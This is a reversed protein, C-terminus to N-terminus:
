PPARHTEAGVACVCSPRNFTVSPWTIIGGTPSSLSGRHFDVCEREARELDRGVDHGVRPLRDEDVGGLPGLREDLEALGAAEHRVGEDVRVAVAVVDEGVGGELGPPGVDDDGDAGAVGGHEGAGDLVERDHEPGEDLAGLGVAQELAAVDDLDAARDSSTMSVGPWVRPPILRSARWPGSPRGATKVPSVRKAPPMPRVSKGPELESVRRSEIRM